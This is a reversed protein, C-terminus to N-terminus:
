FPSGQDQIEQIQLKSQQLGFDYCLSTNKVNKSGKRFDEFFGFHQLQLISAYHIYISIKSTSVGKGSYPTYYQITKKWLYIVM